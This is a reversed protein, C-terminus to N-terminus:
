AEPELDLALQAECACPPRRRERRIPCGPPREGWRCPLGRAAAEREASEITEAFWDPYLSQLFEREGAGAFAGCNCEGSRHVLAAADSLPLAHAERYVRTEAGSWHLLPNVWVRAKERWAAVATGMRRESESARAGSILMIRDSRKRKHERVLTAIQRDKLLIYPYRHAGPGPVGHRRVMQRYADGAEYVLLPVGIQVAVAEAHARVGPLATGTDIHVAATLESDLREAAWHLMATSDGGGSFLAFVCRPEHEDIAGYVIERSQTERGSM